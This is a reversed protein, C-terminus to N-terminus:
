PRARDRYGGTRDSPLVRAHAGARRGRALDDGAGVDSRRDASGRRTTQAVSGSGSRDPGRRRDAGTSTECFGNWTLGTSATADPELRTWLARADLCSAVRVSRRPEGSLNVITRPM